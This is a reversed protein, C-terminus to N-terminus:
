LSVVTGSSWSASLQTILATRNASDEVESLMFAKNGADKISTGVHWCRNDDVVIFRDHFETSRRVELVFSRHQSLFKRGEQTFDNPTKFTLLQIRLSSASITGLLTLISSDLYPDVITISTTANQLLRRIEVYADHQSHKPFFLEHVDATVPVLRGDEVRWGISELGTSLSDGHGRRALESAAIHAVRLRDEASLADFATNIRPRYAAKRYKDSYDQRETLSWDVVLGTKEIIEPIEHSSHEFLNGCIVRWPDLDSRSMM